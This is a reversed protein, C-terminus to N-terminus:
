DTALLAMFRLRQRETLGPSRGSQWLALLSEDTGYANLYPLGAEVVSAAVENAVVRADTAATLVWWHDSSPQLLFGIRERLHAESAGVKGPDM